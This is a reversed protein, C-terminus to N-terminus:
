NVLKGFGQFLVDVYQITCATILQEDEYLRMIEFLGELFSVALPRAALRVM